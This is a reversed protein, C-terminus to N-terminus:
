MFFKKIVISKKVPIAKDWSSACLEHVGLGDQQTVLGVQQEVLVAAVFTLAVFALCVVVQVGSCIFFQVGSCNFVHVAVVAALLLRLAVFLVVVEVVAL